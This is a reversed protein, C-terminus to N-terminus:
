PTVECLALVDQERMILFKVRDLWLEQGAQVGFIVRDGRAVERCDPGVAVVTGAFEPRWAVEALILGSPTETPNAEPQILVRAGLPVFNVSTM